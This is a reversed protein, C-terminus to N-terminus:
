WGVTKLLKHIYNNGFASLLPLRNIKSILDDTSSYLLPYNSGAMEIFIPLNPLFTFKGYTLAEFFPYYFGECDSTCILFDCDNIIRSLTSSSVNVCVQLSNSPLNYYHNRKLFDAGIQDTIFTISSSPYILKLSKFINVCSKFNKRKSFRAIFLVNFLTSRDLNIPALFFKDNKSLINSTPPNYRVTIRSPPILISLNDATSNSVTVFIIGPNFTLLLLYIYKRLEYLDFSILSPWLPRLHHFYSLFVKEKSFLFKVPSDTFIFRHTKSHSKFDAYDYTFFYSNDGLDAASFFAGSYLEFNEKSASNHSYKSVLLVLNSQSM